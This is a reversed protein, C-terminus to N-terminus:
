KFILPNDVIVQYLTTADERCFDEETPLGEREKSDLRYTIGNVFHIAHFLEHLFAVYKKQQKRNPDIFIKQDNNHTSGFCSGENAIETSYKVEYTYPGVKVEFDKDPIKM